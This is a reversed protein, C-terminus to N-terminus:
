SRCLELYIQRRTPSMALVDREPWAYARALTHVDRLTRRAWADIERWLFSVIDFTGAWEHGCGPCRMSISLDAQPDAEAMARAITEVDDETLAAIRAAVETGDSGCQAGQACRTLLAFRAQRPDTPLGLLDVMAPVRFVIGHQRILRGPAADDRSVDSRLDCTQLMSELQQGCAPCAAVILMDAGFLSERLQLLLDNGYGLEISALDHREWQPCAAGLLALARRPPPLDFGVEWIALLQEAGPALM